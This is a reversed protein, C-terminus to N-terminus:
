NLTNTQDVLIQTLANTPRAFPGGAVSSIGVGITGALLAAFATITRRARWGRLAPMVFAIMGLLITPGMLRMALSASGDQLDRLSWALTIAFVAMFVWAGARRRKAILTGALMLGSGALAYYTSYDAVLLGGVALVAGLILIMGGSLTLLARTAVARQQESVYIQNGVAATLRTM